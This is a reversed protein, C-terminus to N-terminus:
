RIKKRPERPGEKIGVTGPAVKESVGGDKVPIPNDKLLRAFFALNRAMTEAMDKTVGRDFKKTLSEKTDGTTDGLWSLSCAPPVTFGNWSMFNTINGIIHQAGDEAGTIVIGGIKNEFDSRGTELLEDNLADLREIIRQILSSQNGWWIPTAFIVINSKLVRELIDPWDDPVGVHTEIGPEIHHDVLRIIESEVDNKRLYNTLYESLTDTNSRTPSHKLTGLLFVAKLKDNNM